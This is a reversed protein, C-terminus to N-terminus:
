ITIRIAEIYNSKKEAVNVLAGIRFYYSQGTKLTSSNADIDIELTYLTDAQTVADLTKEVAVQRLFEGVAPEPHVYLGIKKVKDETTQELNFTAVIKNGQKEIKANKIRIYPQVTFNLVTHGKVKIEQSGVPVFNGRVPEISYKNAFMLDNRYTGDVQVVMSQIANSVGNKVVTTNFGYQPTFNFDEIPLQSYLNAMYLKVGTPDSFIVDAPIKDKPELDMFDSCGTLTIALTTICTYILKRMKM